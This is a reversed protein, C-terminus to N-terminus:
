VYLFSEQEDYSSGEPLSIVVTKPAIYDMGIKQSCTDKLIEKIVVTLTWLCHV